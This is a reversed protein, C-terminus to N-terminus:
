RGGRKPGGVKGPKGGRRPPASPKSGRGAPAAARAPRPPRGKPREERRGREGGVKPVFRRPREAVFDGERLTAPASLTPVFAVRKGKADAAQAEVVWASVRRLDEDVGTIEVKVKDGLTLVVQGGRGTARTRHEDVEFGGGLAGLPVGVEVFPSLLKVFCVKPSYGQIVGEFRQGIRGKMLLCTKWRDNEREAETATQETDSSQKALIALHGKLGEAAPEGRLARRLLRHVVLDPYRRIPSTFHLYDQLALGSHGINDTSYAARKLSRVLLTNLM